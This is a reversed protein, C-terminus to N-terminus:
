IGGLAVKRVDSRLRLCGYRVADAGHDPGTSDFEEVRKLDRGLYPLTAWLYACSRSIYLSARGAQWRGGALAAHYELRDVQRSEQSAQLSRWLM